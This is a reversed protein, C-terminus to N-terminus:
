GKQLNLSSDVFTKFYSYTDIIDNPCTFYVKEDFKGKAKNKLINLLDQNLKVLQKQAAQRKKRLQDNKRSDNPRNEKIQGKSEGGGPENPRIDSQLGAITFYGYKEPKFDLNDIFQVQEKSLINDIRRSHQKGFETLVVIEKIREQEEEPSPKSFQPRSPGNLNKPANNRSSEPKMKTLIIKKNILEQYLPLIRSAQEKTLALQKKRSKGLLYLGETMWTIDKRMTQNEQITERFTKEAGWVSAGLALVSIIIFGFWTKKM